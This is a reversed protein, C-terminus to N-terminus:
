QYLGLISIIMMLDGKFYQSFCGLIECAVGMQSNVNITQSQLFYYAVWHELYKRVGLFIGENPRDYVSLLFKTNWIKLQSL